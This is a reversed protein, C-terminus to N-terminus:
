KCRHNSVRVQGDGDRRAGGKGQAICKWKQQAWSCNPLEPMTTQKEIGNLIAEKRLLCRKPLRVPRRKCGNHRKSVAVDYGLSSSGKQQVGNKFRLQGSAKAGKDQSPIPVAASLFTCRPVVCYRSRAPHWISAEYPLSCYPVPFPLLLLLVAPRSRARTIAKETRCSLESRSRYTYSTLTVLRCNAAASCQTPM